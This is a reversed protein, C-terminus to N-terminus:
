SASRSACAAAPEKCTPGAAPSSTWRRRLFLVLLVILVILVLTGIGIYM